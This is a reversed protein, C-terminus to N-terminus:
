TSHLQVPARIELHSAAAAEVAYTVRPEPLLHPASVQLAHLAGSAAMAGSGIAVYSGVPTALQHSLVWLSPGYALLADLAAGGGDEDRDCIHRELLLDSAKEALDQAWPGLGKKGPPRPKLHRVLVGQAAAFGACGLLVFGPGNKLPIAHVKQAQMVSHGEDTLVSDSGIVVRKGAVVGVIVTV